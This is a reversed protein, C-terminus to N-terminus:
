TTSTTSEIIGGHSKWTDLIVKFNPTMDAAWPLNRAKTSVGTTSTRWTFAAQNRWTQIVDSFFRPIKPALKRGLTSAMVQQAGTIEDTEREVHATVIMWCRTDACLKNILKEIADMAVGWNQVSKVPKSGVVHSMAMISLGSLSDLVFARDTNWETTDGFSEGCRDCRFNAIRELTTIFQRHKGKELDPMKALQDIPLENVKKASDIMTAWSERAPPIYCWHFKPCPIDAIVEMGPETFVAFPTIGMDVLTRLAHTKGTGSDGMLLINPAPLM